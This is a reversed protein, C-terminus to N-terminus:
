NWLGAKIAGITQENPCYKPWRAAVPKDELEHACHQKSNCRACLLQLDRMVAPEVGTADVGLAQLRHELLHTTGSGSAALFRLDSTSIGLDEAIRTVESPDLKALENIAARKEWINKWKGTLLGMLDQLNSRLESQM